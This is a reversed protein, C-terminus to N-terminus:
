TTTQKNDTFRTSTSIMKKKCVFGYMELAEQSRAFLLIKGFGIIRIGRAFSLIKGFGIIVFTAAYPSHCIVCKKTTYLLCM